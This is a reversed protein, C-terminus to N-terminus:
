LINYIALSIADRSIFVFTHVLFIFCIGRLGLDFLVLLLMMEKAINVDKQLEVHYILPM